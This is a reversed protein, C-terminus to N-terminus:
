QCNVEYDMSSLGIFKLDSKRYFMQTGVRVKPQLSIEDPPMKNDPDLPLIIKLDPTLTHGHLLPLVKHQSLKYKRIGKFHLLSLSTHEM